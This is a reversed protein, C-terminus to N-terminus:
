LRSFQVQLGDKPRLTPIRVPDLSQDPHLKWCYGRWLHATVITLELKAFAM